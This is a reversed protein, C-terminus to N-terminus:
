GHLVQAPATVPSAHALWSTDTVEVLKVMGDMGFFPRDVRSVTLEAGSSLRVRDGVRVHEVTTDTWVPADSM